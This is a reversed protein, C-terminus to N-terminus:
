ESFGLCSLHRGIHKVLGNYYEDEYKHLLKYIKDKFKNSGDSNLASLILGYTIHIVQRSDDLNMLEPLEDNSLKELPPINKVDAKIHYYKKAENLHNLAFNHIERYLSPDKQAVVRIAELWNTGATKIHCNGNVLKGIIPFVTFKDSGSHVSIKYGFHESIKQHIIFENEFQTIDGIYDIGKQFEGCFRPAITAPRVGNGILENAVFFHDEPSTPTLTEDISMEFDAQTSNRFYKNYIDTAFEVAKGYILITKMFNNLTYTIKTGDKLTHTKNLYKSELIQFVSENYLSLIESDTKSAITNDIHESCDLTIMTYGCNLAMEVEQATKLHDGDAGFGGKYGEQFIAWSADDLVEQYTRSTLTLERISQQAFVPKTISSKFLKIHGATALGLRDGLGMSVGDSLVKVPSMFPFFNRLLKCNVSSLLCVKYKLDNITKEIGDIKLYIESDYCIILKKDNECKAIFLISNEFKNISFPYVGYIDINDNAKQIMTELTNNPLVCESIFKEFIM